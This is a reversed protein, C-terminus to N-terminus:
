RNGKYYKRLAKKSDKVKKPKNKKMIKENMSSIKAEIDVDFFAKIHKKSKADEVKSFEAMIKYPNKEKTKFNEDYERIKSIVSDRLVRLEIKKREKKAKRISKNLHKIEDDKSSLKDKFETIERNFETREALIAINVADSVQFEKDKIIIKPL